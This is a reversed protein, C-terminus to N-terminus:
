HVFLLAIMTGLIVIGFLVIITGAVTKFMLGLTKM